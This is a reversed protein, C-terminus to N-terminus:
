VCACECQCPNRGRPPKIVESGVLAVRQDLYLGRDITRYQKKVLWNGLCLFILMRLAKAGDRNGGIKLSM